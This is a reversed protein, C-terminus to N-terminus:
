ITLVARLVGGCARAANSASRLSSSGRHRVRCGTACEADSHGHHRGSPVARMERTPRMPRECGLGVEVSTDPVHDVVSCGRKEIPQCGLPRHRHLDLPNSQAALGADEVCAQTCGAPCTWTQSFSRSTANDPTQAILPRRSPQCSPTRSPRASPGLCPRDAFPVLADTPACVGQGLGRTPVSISPVPATLDPPDFLTPSFSVRAMIWPPTSPDAHRDCPM